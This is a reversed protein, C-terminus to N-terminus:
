TGPLERQKAAIDAPGKSLGQPIAPKPRQEAAKSKPAPILRGLREKGITLGHERLTKQVQDLSVGKAMVEVIAAAMGAIVEDKSMERDRPDSPELDHLKGIVSQVLHGDLKKKAAAM